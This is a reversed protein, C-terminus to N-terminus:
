PTSIQNNFIEEEINPVEDLEGIIRPDVDLSKAIEEILKEDRTLVQYSRIFKEPFWNKQVKISSVKSYQGKIFNDINIWTPIKLVIMSRLPETGVIKDLVYSQDNRLEKMYSDFRENDLVETVCVMADKREPHIYYRPKTIVTRNGFLKGSNSNILDAFFMPAIYRHTRNLNSKM